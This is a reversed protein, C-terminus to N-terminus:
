PLPFYIQEHIRIVDNLWISGSNPNRNKDLLQTAAIVFIDTNTDYRVAGIAAIEDGIQPLTKSELVPTLEIRVLGTTDDLTFGAADILVVM